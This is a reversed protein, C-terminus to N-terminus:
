NRSILYFRVAITNDPLRKVFILQAFHWFVPRASISINYDYGREANDLGFYCILFPPDMPPDAKKGRAPARKIGLRLRCM